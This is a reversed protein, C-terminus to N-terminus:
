HTAIHLPLSKRGEDRQFRPKMLKIQFLDVLITNPELMNKGMIKILKNKEDESGM